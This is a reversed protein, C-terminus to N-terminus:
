RMEEEDPPPAPIPDDRNAEWVKAALESLVYEPTHGEAEVMTKGYTPPKWAIGVYKAYEIQWYFKVRWGLDVILKLHSV